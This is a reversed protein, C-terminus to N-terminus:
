RLRSLFGSYARWCVFLIVVTSLGTLAPNKLFSEARDGVFRALLAFLLATVASGTAIAALGHVRSLGFIRALFSGTIAGTGALPLLVFLMVGFFARRELGPYERIIEQARLRAKLLGSGLLPARELVRLGGALAFAFLMDLLFVLAVLQWLTPADEQLAAFIIFKGAFALSLGAHTLLALMGSAGGDAQIWVLFALLLFLTALACWHFARAERPTELPV